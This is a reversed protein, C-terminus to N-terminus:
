GSKVKTNRMSILKKKKHQKKNRTKLVFLKANRDKKKNVHNKIYKKRKEKRIL